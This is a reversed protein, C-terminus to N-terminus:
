PVVVRVRYYRAPNTVGNTHVFTATQGLGTNSSLVNTLGTSVFNNSYSGATGTTSELVNAYSSPRGHASDGNAGLYTITVNTGSTRAISTIKLRASSNNPAFGALFENTNSMGDGDPDAGGAANGGSLGYSTAWTTYPDSPGGTPLDNFADTYNTEICLKYVAYGPSPTASTTFQGGLQLCGLNDNRCYNGTNVVVMYATNTNETGSGPDVWVVQNSSGITGARVIVSYQQNYNLAQTGYQWPGCNNIRAGFVFHTNGADSARASLEYEFRASPTLNQGQWFAPGYVPDVSSPPASTYMISMAAYVYSVNNSTLPINRYPEDNATLSAPQWVAGDHVQLTPSANAATWGQQGELDGSAFTSFDDCFFVGGVTLNAARTDILATNNSFSILDAYNGAGLSNAGGVGNTIIVISVNTRACAGLSVSLSSGTTTGIAVNAWSSTSNVKLTIPTGGNFVTYSRGKPNFPGGPPGSVNYDFTPNIDQQTLFVTVDRTTTGVVSTKNSFTVTATNTALTLGTINGLTVTVNASAMSGLTGNSSSLTVWAASVTATWDISSTGPNALSYVDTENTNNCGTNANAFVDIAPGVSLRGAGDPLALDTNTTPAMVIGRLGKNLTPNVIISPNDTPPANYGTLDLNYIVTTNGEFTTGGSTIFLAVNTQNGGPTSMTGALGVASNLGGANPGITGKLVWTGSVLAYKKVDNATADAVYLTDLPDAGGANLKFMVFGEPGLANVASLYANTVSNTSTPLQGLVNNTCIVVSQTIGAPNNIDFYLQNNFIQLQRINGISSSVGTSSETGTTQYRIGGVDGGTWINTGDTSVACRLEANDRASNTQVTTTDQNGAGDVVGTVRPVATAFNGQITGNTFQKLTEGYGNVLIFRGDVSRTILGSAFATGSGVLPSYAGFYNTRLMISQVITGNTTYEDLFVPNCNTASLAAVGDGVRYVVINGAKFQAAFMTMGTALAIFVTMLSLIKKM